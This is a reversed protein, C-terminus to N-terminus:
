MLGTNRGRTKQGRMKMLLAFVRHPNGSLLPVFNTFLLGPFGARSFIIAFLCRFIGGKTNL